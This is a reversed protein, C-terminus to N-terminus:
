FHFILFIYNVFINHNLLNCKLNKSQSVNNLHVFNLMIIPILSSESVICQNSTLSVLFKM